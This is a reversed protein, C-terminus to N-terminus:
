AAGLTHLRDLDAVTVLAASPKGHKTILFRRGGYQAMGLLEPLTRQADNATVQEVPEGKDEKDPAEM